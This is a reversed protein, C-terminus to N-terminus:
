TCSNRRRLMLGILLAFAGWLAPASSQFTSCGGEECTRADYAAKAAEYNPSGPKPPEGKCVLYYYEAFDLVDAPTGEAAPSNASRNGAADISAVVVSYTVGNELGVLRMGDSAESTGFRSCRASASGYLGKLSLNTPEGSLPEDAQAGAAAASPIACVEFRDVDNLSQSAPKVILAEEAPTVTPASTPAPPRTRDVLLSVSDSIVSREAVLDDAPQYYQVFFYLRTDSEGSCANPIYDSLKVGSASVSTGGQTSQFCFCNGDNFPCSSVTSRDCASSSTSATLRVDYDTAAPEVKYAGTLTLSQSLRDLCDDIGIPALSPSVNLSFQSDDLNAGLTDEAHAAGGVALAALLTLRASPTMEILSGM